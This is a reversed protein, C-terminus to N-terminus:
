LYGLKRYQDLMADEDMYEVMTRAEVISRKSVVLQDKVVAIEEDRDEIDQELAERRADLVKVETEARAVVLADKITDVHNSQYKRYLLFALVAAIASVVAAAYKKANSV